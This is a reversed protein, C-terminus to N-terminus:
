NKNHKELTEDPMLWLFNLITLPANANARASAWFWLKAGISFTFIAVIVFSDQTYFYHKL